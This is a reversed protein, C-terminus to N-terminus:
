IDFVSYINESSAKSLTKRDWDKFNKNKKSMLKYYRKKNNIIKKKKICSHKSLM